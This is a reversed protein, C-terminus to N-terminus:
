DRASIFVSKGILSVSLVIIHARCCPICVSDIMFVPEHCAHAPQVAPPCHLPETHDIVLVAQALETTCILVSPLLKTDWLCEKEGRRTSCASGM